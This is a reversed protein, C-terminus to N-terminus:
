AARREVLRSGTGGAPRSQLGIDVPPEQEPQVSDRRVLRGVHYSVAMMTFSALLAVGCGALAAQDDSMQSVFATM